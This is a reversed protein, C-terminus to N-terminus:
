PYRTRERDPLPLITHQLKKEGAVQTPGVFLMYAYVDELAHRENEQSKLKGQPPTPGDGVVANEWTSAHPAHSQTEAACSPM